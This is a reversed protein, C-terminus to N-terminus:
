AIMHAYIYIYVYINIHICVFNHGCTKNTYIAYVSVYVIYAHMWINSENQNVLINCSSTVINYINNANELVSLVYM